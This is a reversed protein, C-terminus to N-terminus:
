SSSAVTEERRFPHFCLRSAPHFSLRHARAGRSCCRVFAHQSFSLSFFAAARGVLFIYLEILILSHTTRARFSTQWVRPQWVRTRLARAPLALCFSCIHVRAQNRRIFSKGQVHRPVKRPYRKGEHRSKKEREKRQLM